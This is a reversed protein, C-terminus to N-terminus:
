RDYFLITDAKIVFRYHDNEKRLIDHIIFSLIDDREEIEFGTMVKWQEMTPIEIYFACGGGGMEHLFEITRNGEIYTIYGSRFTGRYELRRGFLAALRADLKDRLILDENPLDNGFGDKYVIYEEKKITDPINNAIAAVNTEKPINEEYKIIRILHQYGPKWNIQIVYSGPPYSLTDWILQISGNLRDSVPYEEVVRDSSDIWRIQQYEMGPQSLWVILQQCDPYHVVKVSDPTLPVFALSAPGTTNDVGVLEIIGYYEM